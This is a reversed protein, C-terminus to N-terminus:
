RSKLEGPAEVGLGYAREQLLGSGAYGVGGGADARAGLHETVVGLAGGVVFPAWAELEEEVGVIHAAVGSADSMHEGFVKWLGEVAPGGVEGGRAVPVDADHPGGVTGHVVADFHGADGGPETGGEAEVGGGSDGRRVPEGQGGLEEGLDGGAGHEVVAEVREGRGAGGQAPVGVVEPEVDQGTLPLADGLLFGEDAAAALDAVFEARRDLGGAQDAVQHPEGQQHVPAVRRVAFPEAAGEGPGRAGRSAESSM